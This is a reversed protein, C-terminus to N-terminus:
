DVILRGGEDIDVYVPNFLQGSEALSSLVDFHQETLKVRDKKRFVFYHSDIEVVSSNKILEMPYMKDLASILRADHEDFDNEDLDVQREGSLIRKEKSKWLNMSHTFESLENESLVSVVFACKVAREENIIVRGSHCIEDACRNFEVREKTYDGWVQSFVPGRRYGKLYVFDAKEGSVKTFCEYLLLFKQLKLATDYESKHNQRLWGSLCLKRENSYIM